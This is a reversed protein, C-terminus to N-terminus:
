KEGSNWYTELQVECLILTKKKPGGVRKILVFKGAVPNQCKLQIQGVSLLEIPLISITVFPNEKLKVCDSLFKTIKFLITSFILFTTKFQYDTLYHIAADNRKDSLANGNTQAVSYKINDNRDNYDNDGNSDADFVYMYEGSLINGLSDFSICLNEEFNQVNSSIYINWNNM